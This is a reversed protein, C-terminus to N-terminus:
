TGPSGTNRGVTHSAHDAFNAASAPNAASVTPECGSASETPLASASPM